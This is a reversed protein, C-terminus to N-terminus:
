DNGTIRKQSSLNVETTQVEFVILLTYVNEFVEKKESSTKEFRPIIYPLSQLTKIAELELEMSSSKAKIDIIRGIPDIKFRTYIRNTGPKAYPTVSAIDYNADVFEQIANIICNKRVRENTSNKCKLFPNDQSFSSSFIMLGFSLVLFSRM